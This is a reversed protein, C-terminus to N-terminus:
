ATHGQKSPSSAKKSAPPPSVLSDKHNKKQALVTSQVSSPKGLTITSGLEKAVNKFLIKTNQTLYEPRFDKKIKELFKLAADKNKEKHFIQAMYLLADAAHPGEEDGKYVRACTNLSEKYHKTEFLLHGLYYLASRSSSDTEYTKIYADCLKRFVPLKEKQQVDSLSLVEDYAKKLANFDQQMKGGPLTPAKKEADEMAKAEIETHADFNKMRSSPEPAVHSVVYEVDANPLSTNEVEKKKQMSEVANRLSVVQARLFTVEDKLSASAPDISASNSALDSPDNEEAPIDPIEREEIVEYVEGESAYLLAMPTLPLLLLVWLTRM